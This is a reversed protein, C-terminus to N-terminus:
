PGLDTMERYSPDVKRTQDINRFQTASNEQPDRDVGGWAHRRRSRLVSTTQAAAMSVLTICVVAFIGFWSPEWSQRTQPGSRSIVEIVNTVSSELDNSRMGSALDPAVSAVEATVVIPSAERKGIAPIHIARSQVISRDSQSVAADNKDSSRASAEGSNVEFIPCSQQPAALSVDWNYSDSVNPRLEVWGLKPIFAVTFNRKPVDSVVYGM